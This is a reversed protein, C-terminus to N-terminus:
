FGDERWNQLVGNSGFSEPLLCYTKICLVEFDYTFTKYISYLFLKFVDGTLSILELYERGMGGLIGKLRDIGESGLNESYLYVCGSDDSEYATFLFEELDVRVKCEIM